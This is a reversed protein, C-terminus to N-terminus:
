WSILLRLFFLYSLLSFLLYRRFTLWTKSVFMTKFKGSAHLFSGDKLVALCYVMSTTVFVNLCEGRMNWVRITCDDSGSVLVGDEEVEFLSNVAETHGEFTKVCILMTTADTDIDINNHNNNNNNTSPNWLRIHFDHGCSAILGSSLEIAREVCPPHSMMAHPVYWDMLIKNNRTQKRTRKWLRVSGDLSGSLLDGNKMFSLTGVTNTHGVLTQIHGQRKGDILWLSITKDSSGTAILMCKGDAGEDIGYDKLNVEMKDLCWVSQTHFFNSDFSCILGSDRDYLFVGGQHDGYVISSRDLELTRVVFTEDSHVFSQLVNSSHDGTQKEEGEGIPTRRHYILPCPHYRSIIEVTGDMYCVILNGDELERVDYFVDESQEALSQYAPQINFCNSSNSKM